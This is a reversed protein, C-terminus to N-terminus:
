EIVVYDNQFETNSIVSLEGRQGKVIYGLYPCNEWTKTKDNWVELGENKFRLNADNECFIRLEPENADWQIANLTIPRPRIKVQM